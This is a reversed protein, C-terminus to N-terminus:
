MFARFLGSFFGAQESPESATEVLIRNFRQKMNDCLDIAQRIFANPEGYVLLDNFQHKDRTFNADIELKRRIKSDASKLLLEPASGSRHIQHLVRLYSELLTLKREMANVTEMKSWDMKTEADWLTAYFASRKLASFTWGGIANAREVVRFLKDNYDKAPSLAMIKEKASETIQKQEEKGERYALDIDEPAEEYGSMEEADIYAEKFADKEIYAYDTKIKGASELAKIDQVHLDGVKWAIADGKLENAAQHMAKSRLERVDAVSRNDQGALMGEDLAKVLASLIEYADKIAKGYAEKQKAKLMDSINKSLLELDSWVTLTAPIKGPFFRFHEKDNYQGEKKVHYYLQMSSPFKGKYKDCFSTVNNAAAQALMLPDIVPMSDEIDDDLILDERRYREEDIALIVEFFKDSYLDEPDYETQFNWSGSQGLKELLSLSCDKAKIEEIIEEVSMDSAIKPAIDKVIPVVAQVTNDEAELSDVFSMKSIDNLKPLLEATDDKIFAIVQELRLHVPDSYEVAETSSKLMSETFYKTSPGAAERIKKAEYVRDKKSSYDTHREGIMNFAGPTLASVEKRQVPLARKLQVGAQAQQPPTINHQAMRKTFSRARDNVPSADMKARLQLLSATSSRNDAFGSASLEAPKSQLQTQTQLEPQPKTDRSFAM